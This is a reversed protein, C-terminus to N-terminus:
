LRRCISSNVRLFDFAAGLLEAIDIHHNFIKSMLRPLLHMLRDLHVLM